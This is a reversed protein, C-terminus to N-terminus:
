DSVKPIATKRFYFKSWTQSNSYSTLNLKTFNWFWMTTWDTKM